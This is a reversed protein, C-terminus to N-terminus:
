DVHRGGCPGPGAGATGASGGIPENRRGALPRDEPPPFALEPGNQVGELANVAAGEAPV